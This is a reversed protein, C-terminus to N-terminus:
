DSRKFRPEKTSINFIPDNDRCIGASNWRVEKGPDHAQGTLQGVFLDSSLPDIGNITAISKGVVIQVPNILLTAM